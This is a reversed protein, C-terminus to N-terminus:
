WAGQNVIWFLQLWVLCFNWFFAYIAEFLSSSAILSTWSRAPRHCVNQWINTNSHHRAGRRMQMEKLGAWQAWSWVSRWKYVCMCIGWRLSSLRLWIRLMLLNVRSKPPPNLRIHMHRFCSSNSAPKGNEVVSSSLSLITWVFFFTFITPLHSAHPDMPTLRSDPSYDIVQITASVKAGDSHNGRHQRQNRLPSWRCPFHWCGSPWSTRTAAQSLKLKYSSVFSVRRNM